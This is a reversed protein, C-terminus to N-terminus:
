RYIYIHICNGGREYSLKLKLPTSQKLDYVELDGPQSECEAALSGKSGIRENLDVPFGYLTISCMKCVVKLNRNCAGPTHQGVLNAETAECKFVSLDSTKMSRFQELSTMVTWLRVCDWCKLLRGYKDSAERWRRILRTATIQCHRSNTNDISSFSPLTFLLLYSCDSANDVNLMYALPHVDMWPDLQVSVVITYWQFSNSPRPPSHECAVIQVIPQLYLWSGNDSVGVQWFGVCCGEEATNSVWCLM